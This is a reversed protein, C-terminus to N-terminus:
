EISSTETQRIRLLQRLMREHSIERDLVEKAQKCLMNLVDLIRKSKSKQQYNIQSENEENNDEDNKELEMLMLDNASYEDIDHDITNKRLQSITPLTTEIYILERVEYAKAKLRAHEMEKKIDGVTLGLLLNMFSITMIALFPIFIFSAISYTPKSFFLTEYDFEGINMALLKHFSYLPILFSTQNYFIMTAALTFGVFLPLIVFILSLINILISQFMVICKGIIPVSRLIFGINLWQFLTSLAALQWQWVPIDNTTKYPLFAFISTLYAVFGFLQVFPVRLGRYLLIELAIKLLNLGALIVISFHLPKSVLRFSM